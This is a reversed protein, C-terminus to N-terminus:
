SPALEVLVDRNRVVQGPAIAVAAISGARHARIPNRMKMADLVCVEQGASVAEGPRVSVKLITGPMPARIVDEGNRGRHRLSPRADSSRRGEPWVEIREGEVFAVIPHAQLDEIKVEYERGDVHVRVNMPGSRATPASRRAHSGAM